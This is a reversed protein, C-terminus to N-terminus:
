KEYSEVKINADKIIKAYKAIDARILAGTQQSNNYYPEMGQLALKEKTDPLAVLKAIEASIRDVIPKPIGAPGGVGQWNTLVIAPLGSEVFTPVDPFAAVRSQGTVALARLRGSKVQAVVNVPTSFFIHIHGGMLDVVAPGGGKYPVHLTKVGAVTNFLEALLHTAGGASSTGYTLQGPKAKALAVLEAVTNAPLSPTVVLVNEYSLVTAIPTIDAIADYPTKFLTHNGALANGLSVLTYGDPRSKVALHTGIITNAGPRNDVIVQQGWAETLRHGILRALVTQSGGPAFPTIYRIPRNPYDQQAGAGASVASMALGCLLAHAKQVNM